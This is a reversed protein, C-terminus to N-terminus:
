ITNKPIELTNLKHTNIIIKHQLSDQVATWVPVESCMKTIVRDSNRQELIGTYLSTAKDTALNDWFTKMDVVQYTLANRIALPDTDQVVYDHGKEYSRKKGTAGGDGTLVLNVTTEENLNYSAVSRFNDLEHVGRLLRQDDKRIGKMFTIAGKVEDITTEPEVFVVLVEVGDPMRVKLKLTGSTPSGDDPVDAPSGTGSNTDGKDKDNDKDGGGEGGCCSLSVAIRKEEIADLAQLLSVEVVDKRCQIGDVVVAHGTLKTHLLQMDKLTLRHLELCTPIEDPSQMSFEEYNQELIAPEPQECEKHQMQQQEKPHTCSPRNSLKM